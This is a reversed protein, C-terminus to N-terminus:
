GEGGTRQIEGSKKTESEPSDVAPTFNFGDDTMVFAMKYKDLVRNMGSLVAERNVSFWRILESYMAHTKQVDIVVYVKNSGLKLEGVRLKVFTSPKINRSRKSQHPRAGFEITSM